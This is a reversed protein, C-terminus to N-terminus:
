LEFIKIQGNWGSAAILSKNSNADLKFKVDMCPQEGGALTRGFGQVREVLQSTHVNYVYVGGDISGSAILCGSANVDCGIYYGQTRQRGSEFRKHKNM